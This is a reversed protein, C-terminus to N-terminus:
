VVAVAERRNVPVSMRAPGVKSARSTWINEVL